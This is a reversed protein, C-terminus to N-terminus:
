SNFVIGLNGEKKESYKEITPIIINETTGPIITSKAVFVHYKNDESIKLYSGIDKLVSEIYTTDYLGNRALPTPICLFSVDTNSRIDTSCIHGLRNLEKIVDKNIDHFLKM